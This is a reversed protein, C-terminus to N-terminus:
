NMRRPPGFGLKGPNMIGDPDWADKLSRLLDFAEGHAERMFRGLKVGVGHHENLTGGNDLSAKIAADWLRDHLAMAENPDDPAQDIYFRDYIM